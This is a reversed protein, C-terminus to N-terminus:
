FSLDKDNAFINARALIDITNETDKSAILDLQDQTYNYKWPQLQDNM